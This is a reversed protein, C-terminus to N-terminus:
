CPVPIDVVHAFNYEGTTVLLRFSSAVIMYILIILMANLRYEGIVFPLVVLPIVLGIVALIKGLNRRPRM